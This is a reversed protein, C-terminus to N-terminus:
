TREGPSTRAFGRRLTCNRLFRDITLAGGMQLSQLPTAALGMVPFVALQLVMALVHGAALNAAAALGALGHWRNM